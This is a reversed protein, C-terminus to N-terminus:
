KWLSKQKKTNLSIEQIGDACTSYRRRSIARLDACIWTKRVPIKRVGPSRDQHNPYPVKGTHGANSCLRDPKWSRLTKQCCHCPRHLGQFTAGPPLARAYAQIGNEDQMWLHIAAKDANDIEQYPCNQEVVFVSIRLKYIEYLESTTLEDFTKTILKM